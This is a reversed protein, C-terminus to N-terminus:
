YSGFSVMRANMIKELTEEIHLRSLKESSGKKLINDCYASLLEASSCGDMTKNCFILFAERLAKHFQNHNSFCDVVYSMFQAQLGSVNESKSSAADDAQQVLTLRGILLILVQMFMKAVPDLGLGEPIKSFLKYMRTLDDVKDDCLLARCGSHEKEILQTSYNVLM